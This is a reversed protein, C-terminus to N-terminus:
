LPANLSSACRVDTQHRDTAYMPGLRTSQFHLVLFSSLVSFVPRFIDHTSFEPGSFPPGFQLPANEPGANEVGTIRDEM